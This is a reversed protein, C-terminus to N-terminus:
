ETKKPFLHITVGFEGSNDIGIHTFMVNNPNFMFFGTHVGDDSLFNLSPRDSDEDQKPIGEGKMLGLEDNFMTVTYTGGAHGASIVLWDECGERYYYGCFDTDDYEVPYEKAQEEGSTATATGSDDKSADEASADETSAEISAEAVSVEETAAPEESLEKASEDSEESSDEAATEVFAEDENVIDDIASSACGSLMFSTALALALIKRKM